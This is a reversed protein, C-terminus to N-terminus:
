WGAAKALALAYDPMWQGAPPGGNCEGDSQGVVKIWLYADAHKFKTATTPQQGLARGPPNCWEANAGAGNRSTDIVYGHAGPLRKALAEAYDGSPGTAVFNSVNIAFGRAKAVGAQTLRSAMEEATVWDAHGADLYTVAGTHALRNVAYSLDAYRAAVDGCLQALADPELIVVARDTGVGDAFKDIWAHYDASSGAGGGSHGGCDRGPLNYAVLVATKGAGAAASVVARVDSAPDATWDGFWTAVPTDAIRKMIAADASRSGAWQQAQNAADPNPGYFTDGSLPNGTASTPRASARPSPKASGSPAAGSASAAPGDTPDGAATRSSHSTLKIAVVVMVAVIIVSAAVSLWMGIPRGPSRRHSGGRADSPSEPERPPPVGFPTQTM